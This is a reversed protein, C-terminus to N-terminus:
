REGDIWQGIAGVSLGLIATLMLQIMGIDDMYM